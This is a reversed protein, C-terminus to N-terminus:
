TVKCRLLLRCALWSPTILVLLRLAIAGVIGGNLLARHLRTPEICLGMVTLLGAGGM